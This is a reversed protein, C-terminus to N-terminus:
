TGEQGGADPAASTRDARERLASDLTAAEAQSLFASLDQLLAIGDPLRVVGAVHRMRPDDPRAGTVDHAAVQILEQVRDVRLAVMRNGADALVFHESARIPRPERGFRVHLDYVPVVDGRVDIVGDVVVPAAPLPTVAVAALTEHVVGVPLAFRQDDLTFVLLDM